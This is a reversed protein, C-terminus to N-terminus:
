GFGALRSLYDLSMSRLEAAAPPVHDAHIWKGESRLSAGLREQQHMWDDLTTKVISFIAESEPEEDQLSLPDLNYNKSQWYRKCAGFRHPDKGCYKAVYNALKKKGDILVIWCIPSNVLNGMRAAIWSQPIFDSRLLIHLHPEGSKQAEIVALFEVGPRREQPTAKRVQRRMKILAPDPKGEVLRWRHDEPLMLEALAELRIKRWAEILKKCRELPSGFETARITLTLFRNPNGAIGQAILQKQRQPQCIPCRWSRCYLVKASVQYGERKVILAEACLM